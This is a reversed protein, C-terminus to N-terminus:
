SYHNRKPSYERTKKEQKKERKELRFLLYSKLM